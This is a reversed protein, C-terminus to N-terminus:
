FAVPWHTSSAPCQGSREAISAVVTLDDCMTTVPIGTVGEPISPLALVHGVIQSSLHPVVSRAGFVGRVRSSRPPTLGMGVSVRRFIPASDSGSDRISFGTSFVNRVMWSSLDVADGLVIAGTALSSGVRSVFADAFAVASLAHLCLQDSSTGGTFGPCPLFFIGM